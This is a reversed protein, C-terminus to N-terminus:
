YAFCIPVDGRDRRPAQAAYSFCIPINGRDRRPAEASFKFCIPPEGGDRRPVEASFKFCIPPEGGDRRPVEASYAFRAGGGGPIRSALPQPTGAGLAYVAGDPGMMLRDALSTRNELQNMCGGLSSAIFIM